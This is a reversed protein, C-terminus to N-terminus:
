HKLESYKNLQELIFIKDQFNSNLVLQYYERAKELDEQVMLVQILNLHLFGFPYDPFDNIINLLTTKSSEYSGEDFLKFANNIQKNMEANLIIGLISFCNNDCDEIINLYKIESDPKPFYLQFNLKEGIRKFNYTEPCILINKHDVMEFRNSLLVDQIYTNQDVCFNGGSVKNEISLQVILHTPTININDVIMPHSSMAFNPKIFNQADVASTIFLLLVLISINKM